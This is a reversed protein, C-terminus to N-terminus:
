VETSIYETNLWNIAMGITPIQHLDPVHIWNYVTYPSGDPLPDNLLLEAKATLLGRMGCGPVGYTQDPQEHADLQFIQTAISAPYGTGQYLCANDDCGTFRGKMFIAKQRADKGQMVMLRSKKNSFRQVQWDPIIGRELEESYLIEYLSRPFMDAIDAIVELRLVKVASQIRGLYYDAKAPTASMAEIAEPKLMMIVREIGQSIQDPQLDPVLKREVTTM